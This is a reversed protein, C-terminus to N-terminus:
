KSVGIEFDIEFGFGGYSFKYIVVLVNIWIFKIFTAKKL